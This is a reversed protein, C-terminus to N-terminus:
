ASKPTLYGTAEGVYRLDLYEKTVTPAMDTFWNDGLEVTNKSIKYNNTKYVTPHLGIYTDYNIQNEIPNGTTFDSINFNQTLIAARITVDKTVDISENRPACNHQLNYM